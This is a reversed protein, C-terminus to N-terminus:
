CRSEATITNVTMDEGSSRINSRWTPLEDADAYEQLTRTSLVKHQNVVAALPATPLQAAYIEYDSHRSPYIDSDWGTSVCEQLDFALRLHRSWGNNPTTERQPPWLLVLADIKRLVYIHINIAETANTIAIWGMDCRCCSAATNESPVIM